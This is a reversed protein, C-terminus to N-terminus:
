LFILRLAYNEIKSTTKLIFSNNIVLYYTKLKINKNSGFLEHIIL